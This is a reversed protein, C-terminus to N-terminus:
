GPLGRHRRTGSGSWARRRARARYGRSLDSLRGLLLWARSGRPETANSTSSPQPLSGGLVPGNGSWDCASSPRRAASGTTHTERGRPPRRRAKASPGAPPVRRSLPDQESCSNSGLSIAASSPAPGTRPAVSSQSCVMSRCALSPSCAMTVSCKVGCLSRVSCANTMVFSLFPVLRAYASRAERDSGEWGRGLRPHNHCRAASSQSAVVTM